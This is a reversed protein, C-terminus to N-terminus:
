SRGGASSMNNATSAKNYGNSGTVVVEFDEKMQGQNTAEAASISTGWLACKYNTISKPNPCIYGWVTPASSVSSSPNQSPDREVYINFSECATTNDCYQACGQVDYTHLDYVSIYSTTIVAADLDNFTQTYVHGSQSSAVNIPARTAADHFPAYESFAEPTDPTM